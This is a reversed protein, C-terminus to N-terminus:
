PHRGVAAAREAHAANEACALTGAVCLSPACDLLLSGSTSIHVGPLISDSIRSSWVRKWTLEAAQVGQTAVKTLHLQRLAASRFIQGSAFESGDLTLSALAPGDLAGPEISTDSRLAMEGDPLRM